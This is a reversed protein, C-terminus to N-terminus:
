FECDFVVPHLLFNTCKEIQLSIGAESHQCTQNWFRRALHLFRSFAIPLSLEPKM